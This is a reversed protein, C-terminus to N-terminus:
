VSDDLNFFILYFILFLTSNCRYDKIEVLQTASKVVNYVRFDSMLGIFQNAVAYGGGFTDFENGIVLRESTIAASSFGTKREYSVGNIFYELSGASADRVLAVHM